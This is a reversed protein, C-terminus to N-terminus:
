KNKLKKSADEILKRIAGSKSMGFYKALRALKTDFKRPADQSPYLRYSVSIYKDKKM